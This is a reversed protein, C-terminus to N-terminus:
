AGGGNGGGYSGSGGPPGRVADGGFGGSNNPTPIYGGSAHEIVAQADLEQQSQNAHPDASFAHASLASVSALLLAAIRLAM